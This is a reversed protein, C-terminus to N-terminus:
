RPVVSLAATWALTYESWTSGGDYSVIVGGHNTDGNNNAAFLREEWAPDRALDPPGYGTNLTTWTATGDQTQAVTHDWYSTGSAAAKQSDELSPALGFFGTWQGGLPQGKRLWSLGGNTSYYVGHGQNEGTIVWVTSTNPPPALKVRAPGGGNVWATTSLSSWTAGGDQSKMVEQQINNYADQGIYLILRNMPDIALSYIANQKWGNDTNHPLLDNGFSVGGDTSEYLAGKAPDWYGGPPVKGRVGVFITNSDTPDLTILAM